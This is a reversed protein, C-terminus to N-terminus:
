CMDTLMARQSDPMYQPAPAAIGIFDGREWRAEEKDALCTAIVCSGGLGPKCGFGGEARWLQNERTRHKPTLVKPNLVLVKGTLDGDLPLVDRITLLKAM